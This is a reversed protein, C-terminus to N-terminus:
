ARRIFRFHECSNMRLTYDGCFGGLKSALHSTTTSCSVSSGKPRLFPQQDAEPLLVTGHSVVVTSQSNWCKVIVTQFSLMPVVRTLRGLGLCFRALMLNRTRSEIIFIAFSLIGITNKLPVNLLPAPWWGSYCRSFFTFPLTKSATFRLLLAHM